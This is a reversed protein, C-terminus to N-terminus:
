IHILSLTQVYTILEDIDAKTQSDFALAITASLLLTFVFALLQRM